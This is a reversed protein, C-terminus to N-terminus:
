FDPLPEFFGDHLARRFHRRLDEVAPLNWQTGKRVQLQLGVEALRALQRCDDARLGRYGHEIATLLRDRLKLIAHRRVELIRSSDAIIEGLVTISWDCVMEALVELGLLQLSVPAEGTLYHNRVAAASALSPRRRLAELVPVQGILHSM